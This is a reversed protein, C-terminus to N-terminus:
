SVPELLLAASRVRLSILVPQEQGLSRAQGPRTGNAYASNRRLLRNDNETM